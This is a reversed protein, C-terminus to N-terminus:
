IKTIQKKPRLPPTPHPGSTKQDGLEKIKKPMKERGRSCGRDERKVKEGERVADNKGRPGVYVGVWVVVDVSVGGGDDVVLTAKERGEEKYLM